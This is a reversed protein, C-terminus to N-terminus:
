VDKLAKKRIDATTTISTAKELEEPSLKLRFSERMNVLSDMKDMAKIMSDFEAKAQDNQSSGRITYPNEIVDDAIANIETDIALFVKYYPSSFMAKIKSQFELSLKSLEKEEKDTLEM